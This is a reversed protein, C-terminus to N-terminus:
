IHGSRYRRPRSIPGLVGHFCVKEYSKKIKVWEAEPKRMKCDAM